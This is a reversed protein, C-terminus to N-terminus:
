SIGRSPAIVSPSTWLLSDTSRTFQLLHGRSPRYMTGRRMLACAHVGFEDIPEIDDGSVTRLPGGVIHIISAPRPARTQRLHQLRPPPFCPPPGSDANFGREPDSQVLM